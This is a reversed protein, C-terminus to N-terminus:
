CQWETWSSNVTREWGIKKILYIEEIGPRLRQLYRGYMNSCIISKEIKSWHLRNYESLFAPIFCLCNTIMAGKIVDLSPLVYLVLSAVGIVHLTEM